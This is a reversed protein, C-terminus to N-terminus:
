EDSYQPVFLGILISEFHLKIPLNRENPILHLVNSPRNVTVM